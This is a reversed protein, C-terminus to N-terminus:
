RLTSYRRQGRDTWSLRGAKLALSRPDIGRGRGLLVPTDPDGDSDVKYVSNVSRGPAVCNPRPSTPMEGRDQDGLGVPPCQIWAVGSHGNVRVSGFRVWDVNHLDIRRFWPDAGPGHWAVNLVVVHSNLYPEGGNVALAVISGALAVSPRPFWYSGDDQTVLLSERGDSRECGYLEGLDSFLVVSRDAAVPALDGHRQEYKACPRGATGASSAFHALGAVVGVVGMVIRMRRGTLRM